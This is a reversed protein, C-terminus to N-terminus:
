IPLPSGDVGCVAMELESDVVSCHRQVNGILPPVSCKFLIACAM